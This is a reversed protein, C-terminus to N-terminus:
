AGDGRWCFLGSKDAFDATSESSLRSLLRVRVLRRLVGRRVGLDRLMELDLLLEWDRALRIGWDVEPLIGLGLGRLIGLGRAIGRLRAWGLLGAALCLVRPMCSSLGLTM